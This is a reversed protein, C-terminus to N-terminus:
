DNEITVIVVGDSGDKELVREFLREVRQQTLTEETNGCEYDRIEIIIKM